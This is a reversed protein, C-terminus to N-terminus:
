PLALVQELTIDLSYIMKPTAGTSSYAVAYTIPTSGDIRLLYTNTQVAQLNNLTVAAGALSRATGRDTWGITVTVSSGVNDAQLEVLYYSVRYLGPALITNVIPTASVLTSGSPIQVQNVLSFTQALQVDLGNFYDSWPTPVYGTFKGTKQDVESIQTTVPAPTRQLNAM